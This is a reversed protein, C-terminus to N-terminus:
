LFLVLLIGSIATLYFNHIKFLGNLKLPQRDRMIERGGFVILYYSVLAVATEAMTSMPTMGPRFRFDEAAYGMVKKYATSFIPWLEVGFPRDLTPQGYALWAPQAVM